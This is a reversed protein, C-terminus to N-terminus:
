RRYSSVLYGLLSLAHEGWHNEFGFRFDWRAGVEDGAEFLDEVVRMDHYLDLLDDFPMHTWAEAEPPDGHGSGILVSFRPEVIAYDEEPSRRPARDAMDSAPEDKMRSATEVLKAIAATLAAYDESVGHEVVGRFASIASLVEATSPRQM